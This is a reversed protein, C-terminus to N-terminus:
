SMTVSASAPSFLVRSVHRWTKEDCSYKLWTFAKTTSAFSCTRSRSSASTALSESGAHRLQAVEEEDRTRCRDTVSAFPNRVGSKRTLFASTRKTISLGHPAAMKFHTAQRGTNCQVCQPSSYSRKPCLAVDM